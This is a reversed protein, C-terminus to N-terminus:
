GEPAAADGDEGIALKKLAEKGKRKAASVSLHQWPCHLRGHLITGCKKCFGGGGGSGGGSPNRPGNAKLKAVAQVLATVKEAELEPSLWKADAGDRLSVYIRCLAMLRSTCQSRILAWEKTYFEIERLAEEWGYVGAVLVLHQLLSIYHDVSRRSLVSVYGNNSWADILLTNWPEKSLIAKQRANANRLTRDRIEMVDKLSEILQAESKVGRLAQRNLNKWKLDKRIDESQSGLHHNSAVLEALATHINAATDDGEGSQTTKGPLSVADVLCEMVHIAREESTGPPVLEQRLDKTDVDLNIGFIEEEVKTSRDKNNLLLPPGPPERPVPGAPIPSSTIAEPASTTWSPPIPAAALDV